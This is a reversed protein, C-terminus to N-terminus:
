ITLFHTFSWHIELQNNFWDSCAETIDPAIAFIILPPSLIKIVYFAPSKYNMTCQRGCQTIGRPRLVSWLHQQGGHGFFYWVLNPKMWLGGCVLLWDVNNGDRGPDAGPTKTRTEVFCKATLEKDLPIELVNLNWSLMPVALVRVLFIRCWLCSGFQNFLRSMGRRGCNRLANRWTGSM